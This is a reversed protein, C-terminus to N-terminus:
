NNQAATVDQRLFTTSYYQTGGQQFITLHMRSPGQSTRITYTEAVRTRFKYETRSVSSLCPHRLMSQLKWYFFLQTTSLLFM